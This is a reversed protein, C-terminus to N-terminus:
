RILINQLSSYILIHILAEPPKTCFLYLNKTQKIQTAQKKAYM